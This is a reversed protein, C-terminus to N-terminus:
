DSNGNFHYTVKNPNFLESIKKSVVEDFIGALCTFVYYIKHTIEYKNSLTIIEDWNLINGYKSIFIYTDIIDRLNTENNVGWGTEFNTFFNSCLHLFTYTLNSTRVDIGNININRVNEFFDSIHKLPIASSARKVEVFIYVNDGVDKICQFEHFGSGYKFVPKDIINYRNTNKDFGTEQAFGIDSLLYFMKEMNDETVLLDLDGFQRTYIDGYIIEALAPGKLLIIDINKQQALQLIRGLERLRIDVKKIIDFYKQEFAAQYKAPIHNYLAKYIIPLVKHRLSIQLIEEWNLDKIWESSLICDEKFLVRKAVTLLAKQEDSIFKMIIDMGKAESL